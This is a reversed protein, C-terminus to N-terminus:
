LLEIEEGRVGREHSPYKMEGHRKRPFGEGSVVCSFKEGCGRVAFCGATAYAGDPAPSVLCGVALGQERRQCRLLQLCVAFGGSHRAQRRVGGFESGDGDGGRGPWGRGRRYRPIHTSGWLRFSGSRCRVPAGANRNNKKNQKPTLHTLAAAAACSIRGLPLYASPISKLPALDSHLGRHLPSRFYLTVATVVSGLSNRSVFCLRCCVCSFLVPQCPWPLDCCKAGLGLSASVDEEVCM